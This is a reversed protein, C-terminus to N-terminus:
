EQDFKKKNQKIGHDQPRVNKKCAQLLTVM